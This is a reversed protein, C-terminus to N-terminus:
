TLTWNQATTLPQHPHYFATAAPMPRTVRGAARYTPNLETQYRWTRAIVYLTILILWRRNM